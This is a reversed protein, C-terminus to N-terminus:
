LQRKFQKARIRAASWADKPSIEQKLVAGFDDGLIQDYVMAATLVTNEGDLETSVRFSNLQDSIRCFREKLTRKSKGAMSLATEFAEYTGVPNPM